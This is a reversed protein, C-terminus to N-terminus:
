AHSEGKRRRMAIGMLRLTLLGMAGPEPVSNAQITENIFDNYLATRIGFTAGGSDLAGNTIGAIQYEGNVNVFWASGSDNQSGLWELPLPNQSSALDFDAVLFQEEVTSIGFSAGFSDITNRGGRRIGDFPGVNGFLGPNGYGATIFEAGILSNDPGSFLTAAAIDTIPDTLRVLAIDNGTGGGAESGTFGPFPFVEEVDLFSMLNSGVDASPNFQLSEWPLNPEDFLVHGATLIYANQGDLGNGIFVGSGAIFSGGNADDGTFLGVGDFPSTAGFGVSDELDSINTFISAAADQPVAAVALAIVSLIFTNKLM